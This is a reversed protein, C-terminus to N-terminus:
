LRSTLSPEVTVKGHDATCLVVGDSKRRLVGRLTGLVDCWFFCM